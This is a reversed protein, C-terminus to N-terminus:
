PASRFPWKDDNGLNFLSKLWCCHASSYYFSQNVYYYLLSSIVQFLSMEFRHVDSRRVDTREWDKSLCRSTTTMTSMSGSTTEALHATKAATLSPPCSWVRVGVCAGGDRYFRRSNTWCRRQPGSLKPLRAAIGQVTLGRRSAPATEPTGHFPWKARSSPGSPPFLM